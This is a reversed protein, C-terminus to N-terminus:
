APIPRAAAAAPAGLYAERVISSRALLVAPGSAVLAGRELVYGYDAVALAKKVNQEVMLVTTGADAIRRAIALLEDVMRPALGLSPEDLMLLRPASMMARAVAVMQQEGGSMTGAMQAARERLKPFDAFAQELRRAREAKPVLWGGLELNERVSMQPFLQRGEAVLAVGAAVVRDPQTPLAVDDVTAEGQRPILGALSKLLTTKGAGNPGLIVTLGPRAELSLNRLVLFAGYGASLGQVRLHARGSGGLVFPEPRWDMM